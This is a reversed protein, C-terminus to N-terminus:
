QAVVPRYVMHSFYHWSTESPHMLPHQWAGMPNELPNLDDIQTVRM